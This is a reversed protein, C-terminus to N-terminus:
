DNSLPIKDRGNYATLNEALLNNYYNFTCTGKSAKGRKELNSSEDPITNAGLEPPNTERSAETIDVSTDDGKLRGNDPFEFLVKRLKIQKTCYNRNPDKLDKAQLQFELRAANPDM